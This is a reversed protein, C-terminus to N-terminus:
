IDEATVEKEEAEETDDADEIKSTVTLVSVNEVGVLDVLECNLNMRKLFNEMFPILKEKTGNKSKWDNAFHKVIERVLLMKEEDVLIAINRDVTLIKKMKKEKGNLLVMNEIM